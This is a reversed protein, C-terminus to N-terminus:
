ELGESAPVLTIYLLNRASAVADARLADDACEVYFMVGEGIGAFTRAVATAAFGEGAFDVEVADVKGFAAGDVADMTGHEVHSPDVTAGLSSEILAVSAAQDGNSVDVDAGVSGNTFWVYCGTSSNEYEFGNAGDETLGVWEDTDPFGSTVAVFADVPIEVDMPLEVPLGAAPRM